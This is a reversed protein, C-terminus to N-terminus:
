PTRTVKGTTLDITFTQTGDLVLTATHDAHFTLEATVDFSKDVDHAGMATGTVTRHGKVEFSASGGTIQHDATAITIADYGATSAFTDTSTVGAHFISHVTTDLSFSSTGNFTATASKLGTITWMGERDIAATFSPTMLNGTWKIDVTASDTTDDCKALTAGAADKCTVVFSNDIGMHDGHIRGDSRLAFGIPLRGRAISLADAMAFIDGAGHTDGQRTVTSSAIAQATDDYEAGTPPQTSSSSSCAAISLGFTILTTRKM